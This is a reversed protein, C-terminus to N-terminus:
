TFPRWIFYLGALLILIHLALSVAQNPAGSSGVDKRTVAVAAPSVIAAKRAPAAVVRVVDAQEDEDSDNDDDSDDQL